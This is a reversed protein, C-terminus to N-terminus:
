VSASKEMATSMIFISGLIILVIVVLLSIILAVGKENHRFM